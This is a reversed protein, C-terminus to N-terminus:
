LSLSLSLAKNAFGAASFAGHGSVMSVGMSVPVHGPALLHQLTRRVSVIALSMHSYPITMNYGFHRLAAAGLIM